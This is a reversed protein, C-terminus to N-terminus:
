ETSPIYGRLQVESGTLESFVRVLIEFALAADEENWEGREAKYAALNAQELSTRYANRYVNALYNQKQM